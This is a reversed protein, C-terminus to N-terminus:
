DLKLEPLKEKIINELEEPLKGEKKSKKRNRIYVGLNKENETRTGQQKPWTKYTEYFIKIQEITEIHQSLFSNELKLWPLKEVILQESQSDLIGERKNTKKNKIWSALRNEDPTRTGNRKPEGYIKYFEVIENIHNVNLSYFKDEELTLWPLRQYLLTELEESLNGDKKDRKRNQLYKSLLNEEKDKSHNIPARKNKEYFDELKKIAELHQSLFHDWKLWPLKEEMLEQIDIDLAGDKKLQRRRCIFHALSKENDTRTGNTKPEGYLKYFEAIDNITKIVGDKIPQWSVWPLKEKILKFLTENINGQNKDKRRSSLYDGLENENELISNRCPARNYKKYFIDLDKIYKMHHDWYPDWSFWSLETQILNKVIMSIKGKKNEKRRRRIYGALKAEDDRKGNNKPCEGYQLYFQKIKEIMMKHRDMVTMCKMNIYDSAEKSQITIQEVKEKEESNDYNINAVRVKKYFNPDAERLLELSAICKEWGEAWLFINNKKSMYSEVKTSSRQSRQMMRIDSSQEGINTIFVSDCLPIDIAEDLIRVSSLIRYIDNQGSQFNNLIDRRKNTSVNADIKELWVDLGHYNEFVDKCILNFRDCEEQRSLYVICRRSGTKLMVTALYMVKATLDYEYKSFEIPIDVDPTTTGDAKRILYPLWLNYDVIYGGSIADAFTMKYIENINLNLDEPLTASLVLGRPFKEIFQCIDDTANHIEDGLIFARKIIDGLGYDVIVKDIVDIASKYTTYIIKKDSSDNLFKRIEEIDTTGDSDSDVLIAKHNPLFTALKEQINEVSAKLPAIAVVLEPNLERIHYGAIITKGMRCPINVGNIGDKDKLFNIAELQYPRLTLEQNQPVPAEVENVPPLWRYKVHRIYYQPNAVLCRLDVQLNGYTYLYGRSLNNHLVLKMQMAIFTPIDACCVTRDNYYKAQISHYINKDDITQCALGDFGYDRARNKGDNKKKYMLRLMRERNYNDIYGCEFLWDEPVNQWHRADQNTTSIHRDIVKHEYELALALRQLRDM